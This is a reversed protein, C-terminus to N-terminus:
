DGKIYLGKAGYEGGFRCFNERRCENNLIRYEDNEGRGWEGM